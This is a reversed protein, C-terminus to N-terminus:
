KIRKGGLDCLGYLNKINDNIKLITMGAFAPIWKKEKRV